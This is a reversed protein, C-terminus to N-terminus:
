CYGAKPTVPINLHGTVPRKTTSVIYVTTLVFFLVNNNVKCCIHSLNQYDLVINTFLDILFRVRFRVRHSLLLRDKM